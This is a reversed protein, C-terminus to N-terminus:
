YQDCGSTPTDCQPGSVWVQNVSAGCVGGSFAGTCLVTFPTGPVCNSSSYYAPECIAYAEEGPICSGGGATRNVCVPVGTIANHGGPCKANNYFLGIYDSYGCRKGNGATTASILPSDAFGSILLALCMVAPIVMFNVAVFIQKKM